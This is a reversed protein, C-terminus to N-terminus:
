PLSTPAGTYAANGEFTFSWSIRYEYPEGNRYRPALKRTRRMDLKESAPWMPSAPLPYSDLKTASGSQVVRYTSNSTVQQKPWPGALVPMHVFKPGGTGVFQLDENWQLLIDGPQVRYDAEFTIQYPWVTAFVGNLDNPYSPPQTIRTSGLATSNPWKLAISGDDNLLTLDNGGDKYAAELAALNGVMEGATDAHMWGSINVVHRAAWAVDLDSYLTQRSTSLTVENTAHSYTGYKLKM